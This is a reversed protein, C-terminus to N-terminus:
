RKKNEMKKRNELIQNLLKEEEDKSSLNKIKNWISEKEKRLIIDNLAHVLNIFKWKIIDKTSDKNQEDLLIAAAKIILEENEDLSTNNLLKELIASNDLKKIDSLNYAFNEFFLDSFWYNQIYAMIEEWISFEQKKIKEKFLPKNERLNKFEKYIIDISIDLKKSIEKIHLDVEIPSKIRKLLKILEILMEKKGIVTNINHKVWWQEIYYGVQSLANNICDQFNWWSKIFEDADKAWPIKIIKVEVDENLLNEISAFTAEVWAKDWDLCLYFNSTLRKLLHIQEKTLATWSIAVTNTFWAQHLTITDMQGEVIIVYDKKSIEQKAQSLWFLISSKDFIKSAPSNLYKPLSNDLVRATFAVTSWMYNSIPFIVRWFFKDKKEGVFVWSEILDKPKFWRKILQDWLSSYNPSYGLKFNDITELSLWRNLFYDLKSKNEEKYLEEHYFNEVFKYIDYIDWVNEWIEKYYDTKMEVWAIQAAKHVAEKFPIREIESIFKIPWGWKHCGFCYAINKTPSVVFSPTKENHFPCCCKYNTWAKKLQLYKSAIDVINLKSEIENIISM